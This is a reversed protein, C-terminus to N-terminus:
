KAILRALALYKEVPIEEPRAGPPIGAASLLSPDFRSAKLNNQITKRRHTFSASLLSKTLEWLERELLLDRRPTLRLVMSDVKPKPFFAARSVQFGKEIRFALSCLCSLYGYDKSGPVAWIRHAVERQVMFILESILPKWEPEAFKQILHTAVNYPLNGFFKRPHEGPLNSPELTRADALWLRAAPHTKFLVALPGRALEPDIEVAILEQSIELLRATLAGDGPGIEVLPEGPRVHGFQIIKSITGPSRLFSQGLSKKPHTM